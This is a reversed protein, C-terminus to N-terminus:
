KKVGYIIVSRAFLSPFIKALYNIVNDIIKLLFKNNYASRTSYWQYDIEEIDLYTGYFEIIDKVRPLQIHLHKEVVRFPEQVMTKKGLLFKFRCWFNYENPMSVLFMAKPKSIRILEEMVKHPYLTHELTELCMIINHTNDPIPIPFNDLNHKITSGKKIDLNEYKINNPFYETIENTGDDNGVDLLKVEKTIKQLIKIPLKFQGCDRRLEKMNKM